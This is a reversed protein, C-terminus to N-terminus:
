RRAARSRTARARRRRPEARRSLWGLLAHVAAVNPLLRGALTPIDASGVRFTMGLGRLVRFADEDTQDDGVYIVRVSESWGPGYRDRLIRLLAYGKDWAIPPRAEVACHADRAQFGAARIRDRADRALDEQQEKDVQRFHFTLTAGKKEVWAGAVELDRLSKAIESTRAAFHPLDEHVFDELGPGVVELGHNAAYTLEEIRIVTELDKRARGSVITVETDSRSALKRLLDRAKDDLQAKSPHEVIPTLTGDYDLFVAARHDDLFAGLWRDFDADSPLGLSAGLSAAEQLFGEVWVYVNQNRERRRLALMRSRRESEEMTLAHHLTEAVSDINYPNTHLAEHMTEAAGALRSLILVGPDDIQCAAYEKAVLNMGDRLPTVLAVESDRYLACLKEFPLSRYLYRIPSWTATAFRGNVRGVVEDIERKLVQYEAVQARSPVALQLLVVRERHEPHLELLREFAAIREPIGKTYDLRDVGLVVKEAGERSPRPAARAQSDFLDFDIGLPFHGVEVTREGEQILGAKRDVRVGLLRDVCDMFNRAYGEVHFGVLDAALLGQLIQRYWPLIRFVDFPPFPIHLFFAIRANERQRRLHLPVRMLQYDHIWVLDADDAETAAEAFRENVKEYTEWDRREFRARHAFCHFLPWLTRNSFGHYYRTVETDSLSVPVVRYPDGPSSLSEDPELRSGPWGVWTGGRKELVPNLAKVLGGTSERREIGRPGRQITFPLRNSAILIPQEGNAAERDPPM